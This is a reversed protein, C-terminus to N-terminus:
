SALAKAHSLRTANLLDAPRTGVHKNRAANAADTKTRTIVCLACRAAKAAGLQKAVICFMCRAAKAADAQPKAAACPVGRAAKAAKTQPKNSICPMCRAAKAGDARPKAVIGYNSRAAATANQLVSDTATWGADLGNGDPGYSAARIYPESFTTEYLERTRDGAAVVVGDEDGELLGLYPYHHMFYGFAQECDAAYKMTDLIHYHWFTDVDATPSAAEGKYTHQLYLFRRYETDIADARAQSWGEGSQHMLKIKILGLDLAAIANFVNNTNM